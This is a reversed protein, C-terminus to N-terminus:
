KRIGMQKFNKEIKQKIKDLDIKKGKTKQKLKPDLIVQERYEQLYYSKAGKIWKAIVPFDKTTHLGPVVTTRFEYPLRSNMILGVSLKIREKDGKVGTTRDYKKLQNKIDMAVFDLIKLDLLKKLVDPRTGNTDLKIKFGLKKIKQIFEILDKQITPEGGTICVGELKGRRNKLFKFFEDELIKGGSVNKGLVLEPNHCFPCRFSCGVTFITAALKGPYDILTLKQYGGIRM